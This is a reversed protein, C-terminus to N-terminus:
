GGLGFDQDVGRAVSRANKLPTLGLLDQTGRLLAYHDYPTTSVYGTTTWPSAVLFPALPRGPAAQDWVVFVAMDGAAYARSSLIGEVWTRAFADSAALRAVQSTPCIAPGACGHGSDPVNGEVWTFSRTLDLRTPDAPLPLSRRGCGAAADDYWVAPNHRAYYTTTSSRRCASGMDGMYVTWDTGLQSFLDPGPVRRADGATGWDSGSTMALKAGQYPTASYASASACRAALRQLYPAAGPSQRFLDLTKNEFVVWVVHRVVPRAGRATGCAPASTTPAASAPAGAVATGGAVALLVALLVAPGRGPRGGRRRHARPGARRAPPADTM